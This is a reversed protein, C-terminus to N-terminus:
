QKKDEQLKLAKDYVVNRPAKFQKALTRAIDSLSGREPAALAARIATELDADSAPLTQAGCVLLTCEGKVTSRQKLESSIQSLTGHIFEEHMKTLERALVAKRDGVVASLEGLLSVVRRPSQYFIITHPCDALEKLQRLRKAKKRAPFGIFIFTDTSLGSASLAAIGASVGPIPVVPIQHAVAAQVLRYGPDSVTPTGADSILAISEGHQLRHILEVTRHQENHEHYAVLRSKIDHATMLRRSRRTDEAAILEVSRLTKVARLTIDDLNGIPTAVVYLTGVACHPSQKDM